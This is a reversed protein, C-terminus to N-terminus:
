GHATTRSCDGGIRSRFGRRSSGTCIIVPVLLPPMVPEMIGAPDEDDVVEDDSLADSVGVFVGLAGKGFADDRAGFIWELLKVIGALEETVDPCAEVPRLM